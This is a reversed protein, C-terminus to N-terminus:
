RSFTGLIKWRGSVEVPTCFRTHVSIARSARGTSSGGGCIQVKTEMTLRSVVRQEGPTGFVNSLRAKTRQVTQWKNMVFDDLLQRSVLGDQQGSSHAKPVSMTHRAQANWRELDAITGVTLM